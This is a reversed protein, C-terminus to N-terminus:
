KALRIRLWSELAAADPFHLLARGLDPLDKMPLAEVGQRVEVSIQGFKESIMEVLLQEMGCEMGREMGREMGIGILERGAVTEEIPTLEAIMKTIQTRTKTKFLQALWDVFIAELGAPKSDNLKVGKLRDYDMPALKEVVSEEPLSARGDADLRM